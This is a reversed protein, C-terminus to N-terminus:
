SLKEGDVTERRKIEKESEVKEKTSNEKGNRKRVEKEKM